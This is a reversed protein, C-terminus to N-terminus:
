HVGYVLAYRGIMWLISMPANPVIEMGYYEILFVLKMMTMMKMLHVLFHGVVDDNDILKMVMMMWSSTENVLVSFVEILSMGEDAVRDVYLVIVLMTVM